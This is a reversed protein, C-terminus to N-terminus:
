CRSTPPRRRPPRSGPPVCAASCRPGSCRRTCASRKSPRASSRARPARKSTTAIRSSSARMRASRATSAACCSTARPGPDLRARLVALRRWSVRGVAREAFDASGLERALWDRVESGERLRWLEDIVAAAALDDGFAPHTLAPLAFRETAPRAGHEEAHQAAQQQLAALDDLFEAELTRSRGAREWYTRELVARVFALQDLTLGALRSAGGAGRSVVPPQRVTDERLWWVQFWNDPGVEQIPGASRASRAADPAGLAWEYFALSRRAVIEDTFRSEVRQRASRGLRRRVGDNRLLRDLARRFSDVDGTRAVLGDVEHRLIEPVGGCDSAVIAKGAAMAELLSYPANEWISPLLFVDCQKLCARVAALELKGVCYLGAQLNRAALAPRLEREVVGSSDAGALV